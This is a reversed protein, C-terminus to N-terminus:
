YEENIANIIMIDVYQKTAYQSLDQNKGNTPYVIGSSLQVVEVMAPIYCNSLEFADCQVVRWQQETVPDKIEVCVDYVGSYIQNRGPIIFQLINGQTEINSANIVGYSSTVILSIEKGSFDFADGLQTFTWQVNFSNGIAIKKM